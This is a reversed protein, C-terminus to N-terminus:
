APRLLGVADVVPRGAFVERSLARFAAHPVLIALIDAQALAAQVDVLVVGPRAALTPPLTALLPDCCLLRLTADRALDEAIALAPSARLDEVDAKYTLGLCAVAPPELGGALGAALARIRAAVQGPKAENVARAARILGSAAPAAEALFWPDVAICHGGVGAGPQLIAVRPHRNALAIAAWPDVEMAECIAALENAFAINVDRFANEALKALEATRSDTVWCRGTVFGAYLDRALAACDATLGGIIRDNAVLERLMSGPLVREPCHALHVCGPPAPFGRRPLALDPRAAALRAALAETTGVPVTSELIVLNGPRLLPAIADTAAEVSALDARNGPGLPTPVAIVFVEAPAPVAQAALRGTTLAAALLMDLDPEQFHAQGAQVAAVVRPDTDCGTVQHGRSALM